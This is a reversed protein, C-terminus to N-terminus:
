VDFSSSAQLQRRRGGGELEDDFGEFGDFFDELDESSWEDLGGTTADQPDKEEENFIADDFNWEIESEWDENM